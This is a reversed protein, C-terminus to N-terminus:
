VREDGGCYDCSGKTRVDENHDSYCRAYGLDFHDDWLERGVEAVDVKTPDITANFARPPYANLVAGGLALDNRGQLLQAAVLEHAGFHPAETNNLWLLYEGTDWTREPM